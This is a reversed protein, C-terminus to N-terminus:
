KADTNMGKLRMEIEKREQVDFGADSMCKLFPATTVDSAKFTTPLYSKLKRRMISDADRLEHQRRNQRANDDNERIAEKYKARAVPDKIADPNMGAMGPVNAPPAVNAVIPKPRFNPLREKRVRGLYKCLLSVTSRRDEIPVEDHSALYAALDQMTSLDSADTETANAQKALLSGLLRSAPGNLNAKSPNAKIEKAIGAAKSYYESRDGQNWTDEAQSIQTNVSAAWKDQGFCVEKRLLLALAAMAWIRVIRSRNTKM